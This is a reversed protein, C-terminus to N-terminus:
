SEESKVAPASGVLREVELATETAHRRAVRFCALTYAAQTANHEDAAKALADADRVPWRIYMAQKPGHKYKIRRSM